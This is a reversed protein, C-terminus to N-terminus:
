EEYFGRIILASNQQDEEGAIKQSKYKHFDIGGFAVGSSFAFEPGFSIGNVSIRRKPSLTGDPNEAFVDFFNYPKFDM